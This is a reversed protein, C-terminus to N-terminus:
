GVQFFMHFDQLISLFAVFTIQDLFYSVYFLIYHEVLCLCHQSIIVAYLYTLHPNEVKNNFISCSGIASRHLWFFEAWSSSTIDKFNLTQCNVLPTIYSMQEATESVFGNEDTFPYRPSLWIYSGRSVKGKLFLWIHEQTKNQQGERFGQATYPSQLYEEPPAGRHVLSDM